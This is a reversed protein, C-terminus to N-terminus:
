QMVLSTFFLDEVPSTGMEQELITQMELLASQRLAEKGETSSLVDYTQSSLLLLMKNRLAPLHHLAAELEKEDRGMVEMTVQLFRAKGQGNFNVVFPPTIEMYAAPKKKKDKEKSDAGDEGEAAVEESVKDGDSPIVGLAWLTGVMTGAVALLGALVIVVVLVIKKAGGKKTPEQALDLEEPGAM